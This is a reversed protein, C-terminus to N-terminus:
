GGNTTNISFDVLDSGALIQRLKDASIGDRVVVTHIQNSVLVLSNKDVLPAPIVIKGAATPSRVVLYTIAEPTQPSGVPFHSVTGAVLAQIDGRDSVMDYGVHGIFRCDQWTSKNAVQQFTSFNIRDNPKLTEIDVAM